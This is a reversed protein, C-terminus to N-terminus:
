NSRDKLISDLRAEINKYKKELTIMNRTEKEKNSPKMPWQLDFKGTALSLCFTIFAISFSFMSGYKVFNIISGWIAKQVEEEFSLFKENLHKLSLAKQKYNYLNPDIKNEESNVKQPNNITHFTTRLFKDGKSIKVNSRGFNLITSSMLGSYGPDIIGINIAMIGITSLSTKVHAYGVVDLPMHLTEESIIVLLGRPPIEYSDVEEGDLKIIKGVRLDYVANNYNGIIGNNIINRVLIEEYNLTM